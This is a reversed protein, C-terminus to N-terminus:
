NKPSVITEIQTNWTTPTVKHNLGKIVYELSNNDYTFPLVKNDIEFKQYLVMGSIGMMGLRLNFPIYFPSPCKSLTFYLGLLLKNSETILNEISYLDESIFQKHGYVPLLTPDKHIDFVRAESYQGGIVNDTGIITKTTLVKWIELLQKLIEDNSPPNENYSFNYKNEIVRDILGKNYSSFSTSNSNVQNGQAQAGISVMSNFEQSLESEMNINNIFSGKGESVGFLNFKTYTKNPSNRFDSIIPSKDLIRINGKTIDAEISFNNVNGLAKNVGRFVNRLYELLNINNKSDDRFMNYIVESLYDLGIYLDFLPYHFGGLSQQLNNPILKNFDRLNSFYTQVKNDFGGEINLPNTIPLLCISPDGSLHGPFTLFYNEDSQPNNFNFDFYTIPVKNNNYILFESQIIALLVGLKVYGQTHKIDSWWWRKRITINNIFLLGNKFIKNNFEGRKNLYNYTYDKFEYQTDVNSKHLYLSHLRQTFKNLHQYNIVPINDEDNIKEIKSSTSINLKLSEIVDGLTVLKINCSYSGDVNLKWKFNSIKTYFGEYNGVHKEKENEIAQYIAYQDVLKEQLGTLPRGDLTPGAAEVSEVTSFRKPDMLIKFPETNLTPFDAVEGRNNLYKSWGFELLVTYGPRFYLYDILALQKKTFCKLSVNIKALAGNNYYRVDVSEIGPMPVLGRDGEIENDVGGWGYAGKLENINNLGSNPIYQNNTNQRLTGGFLVLNKALNDGRLSELNLGLAKLKTLAPDDINVSSSLKIWPTKTHNYELINEPINRTNGLIRQRVEVQQRVWPKFPEQLLNGM